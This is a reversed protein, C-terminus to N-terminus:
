ITPPAVNTLAGIPIMSGEPVFSGTQSYDGNSVLQNYVAFKYNRLAFGKSSLQSASILLRVVPGKV